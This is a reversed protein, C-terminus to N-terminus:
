RRIPIEHAALIRLARTPALRPANTGNVMLAFVAVHGREAPYFWGYQNAESPRTPRPRGGWDWFEAIRLGSRRKLGQVVSRPAFPANVLSSLLAGNQSWNALLM